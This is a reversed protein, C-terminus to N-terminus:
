RKLGEIIGRWILAIVQGLVSTLTYRVSSGLLYITEDVRSMLFDKSELGVVTLLSLNQLSQLEGSRNAYITRYYIGTTRIIWICYQSSYLNTPLKVYFNLRTQWGLNNKFRESNRLSLFNSRYLTKRLDQITSLEYIIFYAVANTIEVILNDLIVETFNDTIEDYVPFFISRFLLSEPNYIIDLLLIFNINTEDLITKTYFSDKILSIQIPIHCGYNVTLFEETIIKILALLLAKSKRKEFKSYTSSLGLRFVISEMNLSAVRFLNRKADDTLMDTPLLANSNNVLGGKIKYQVKSFITNIKNTLAQKDKITM